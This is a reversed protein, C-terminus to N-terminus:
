SAPCMIYMRGAACLASFCSTAANTRAAALCYAGDPDSSFVAGPTVPLPATTKLARIGDFVVVLPQSVRPVRTAEDFCSVRNSDALM